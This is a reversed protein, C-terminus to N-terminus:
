LPKLPIVRKYPIILPSLNIFIVWDTPNQTAFSLLVMLKSALSQHLATLCSFIITKNEGKMKIIRKKCEMWNFFKWIINKGTSHYILNNKNWIYLYARHTYHTYSGIYKTLYIKASIYKWFINRKQLTLLKVYKTNKNLNIFM